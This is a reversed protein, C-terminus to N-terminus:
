YKEKSYKRTEKAMSKQKSDERKDYNKKGKAIAFELKAKGNSLYIKTPILTYGDEKIKKHLKNIEHKHLLLKRSRLPDHNFISGEKYPAINMNIVYAENNRITVYSDSISVSHKRISKIETGVLVIGAEYRDDLFYDFSAKRNESILIVKKDM